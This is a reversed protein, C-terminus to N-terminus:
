PRGDGGDEGGGDCRRGLAAVMGAAKDLTEREEAAADSVWTIGGGVRFSAEGSGPAGARPRWLLTRILVNFIGRGRADAFGLAGCFFGRGEGELEAIREMAALKPAGTVSGGPFLAGLLDLATVGPRTEAVVDAMLHHVRAYSALTPFGEVWVHGARALRGLDNRELDVIMALEAKDKESALLAAALERDQAGTRGRPATGKIPRTRALRGDHELLLEPSSSLLAGRPEGAWELYGMYPAPNAERLRLYLDLPHGAVACTLRHALNAQYLDGAAIWARTREIRRRHEEPAVRRVLPGSAGAPGRPDPGALLLEFLEGRRAAVGARGDGPEEGLVLWARAEREDRVVFDCYLGGAIPPFGWPEPAASPAREGECGLDYSLAGVFGGHFPGPPAEGGAPELRALSARLEALSGPAEDAPFAVLPDFAALGFRRPAGAASDLAALARRGRLRSLIEPLALARPLEFVRPKLRLATRAPARASKSVRLMKKRALAAYLNAVKLAFAFGGADRV